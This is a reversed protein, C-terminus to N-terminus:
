FKDPCVGVGGGARGLVHQKLIGKYCNSGAFHLVTQIDNRSAETGQLGVGLGCGPRSGDCRSKSEM